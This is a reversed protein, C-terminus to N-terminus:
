QSSQHFWDYLRQAIADSIGDVAQLDRV